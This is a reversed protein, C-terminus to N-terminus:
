YILKIFNMFNMDFSSSLNMNIHYDINFSYVYTNHYQQIYGSGKCFVAVM